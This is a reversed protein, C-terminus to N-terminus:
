VSFIPMYSCALYDTIYGLFHSFAPECLSVLGLMANIRSACFKINPVMVCLLGVYLFALISDSDIRLSVDHQTEVLTLTFAICHLANYLTTNHVM